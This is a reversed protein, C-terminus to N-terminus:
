YRVVLVDELIVNRCGVRGTVQPDFSAPFFLRIAVGYRIFSRIAVNVCRTSRTTVDIERMDVHLLFGATVMGRHDANRMRAEPEASAVAQQVVTSAICHFVVFIGTDDRAYTTTEM